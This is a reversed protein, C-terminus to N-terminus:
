DQNLLQKRLKMVDRVHARYTRGSNEVWNQMHDLLRKETWRCKNIDDESFLILTKGDEQSVIEGYLDCIECRVRHDGKLEFSKGFCYPCRDSISPIKYQPDMVKETFIKVKEEINSSLLVESPGQAYTQLVDKVYFGLSLLMVSMSQVTFGEWGQRGSTILVGAPKRNKADFMNHAYLLRGNIAKIKAPVNLFYTPTAIFLVDCSLIEDLLKGLDDRTKCFDKNIACKMCGTCDKIDYDRLNINKIIYNECGSIYKKCLSLLAEGNGKPRISTTVTLIKKMFQHTKKYM